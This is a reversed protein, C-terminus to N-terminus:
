ESGREEAAIERLRQQTDVSTLSRTPVGEEVYQVALRPLLARMSREGEALTARAASLTRDARYVAHLPEPGQATRPVVADGAALRDRLDALVSPEALPMDCGLVVALETDVTSLATALGSLPGEDGREDLAWRLDVDLDALADAFATRQDRRCNVVVSDAVAALTGVVHALMPRGDFEALAKEREGFRTSRGGAVVIGTTETRRNATV